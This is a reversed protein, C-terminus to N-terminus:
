TVDMTIYWNFNIDLKIFPKRYNYNMLYHKLFIILLFNSITLMLLNSNYVYIYIYIYISFLGQFIIWPEIEHGQLYHAFKGVQLDFQLTKFVNYLRRQSM